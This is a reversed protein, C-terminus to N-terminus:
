ELLGAGIIKGESRLVVRQGSELPIRKELEVKIRAVRCATVVFPHERLVNGTKLDIISLLEKIKGAKDLRGRHVELPQPILPEFAMVKMTAADICPAPNAPDCLLVGPRVNLPDINTLDLAVNQGAVAWEAAQGNRLISKIYARANGPLALLADGVQLSGAEILGTVTVASGAAKSIDFIPLRLPKDIPRPLPACSELEEILSNGKYWSAAPTKIRTTMNDGTKGAVPVFTVQSMYFGTARLFGKTQDVIQNYREQSWDVTDLKNVAVVIRMVAMSRLILAHQHTQGRLGSEFAGTKADVVLVAFDARSAGAIMNPVFDRHGPADLITFATKDTDFHRAAVNITVGHKREDEHDDLVWALAFSSKGIVKAEKEYKSVTRKEVYELDLLLRAMMTSKGADVHGVVVFSTSRKLNAKSHEELVNLKKSKKTPAFDFKMNKVGEVLAEPQKPASKTAPKTTASKNTNKFAKAQAELVVDDPSPGLFADFASPPARSLSPVALLSPEDQSPHARHKQNQKKAGFLAQAFASPQAVLAPESESNVPTPEELRIDQMALPKEPAPPPSTKKSPPSTPAEKSTTSETDRPSGYVPGDIALKAAKKRLERVDEDAKEGGPSGGGGAEKSKKAEEAKRKRQAALAQLKSMKPAAATSSGGLLGGRRQPPPVLVAMRPQPVNLWPMDSFFAALFASDPPARPTTTPPLPYLPSPCSQCGPSQQPTAKPKKEAPKPPDIYTRMLYAMAKSEDYDYYLIAEEVKGSALKAANEAGLMAVVNQKAQELFAREEEETYEAAPEETGDYFGDNYTGEDYEVGDYEDMDEEYDYNRVLRHRSM